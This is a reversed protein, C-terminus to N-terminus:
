LELINQNKFFIILYKQKCTYSSKIKERKEAYL